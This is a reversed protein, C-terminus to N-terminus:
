NQFDKLLVKFDELSIGNENCLVIEMQNELNNLTNILTSAENQKSELNLKASIGMLITAAFSLCGIAQIPLTTLFCLILATVTVSLIVFTYNLIKLILLKRKVNILQTQCQEQKRNLFDSVKNQCTTVSTNVTDKKSTENNFNATSQLDSVLSPNDM